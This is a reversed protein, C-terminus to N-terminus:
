VLTWRFCIENRLAVNEDASIYFALKTANQNCNCFYHFLFLVFLFFDILWFWLVIIYPVTETTKDKPGSGTEMSRNM